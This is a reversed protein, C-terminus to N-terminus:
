EDGRNNINDIKLAKWGWTFKKKNYNMVALGGVCDDDELHHYMMLDRDIFINDGTFGFGNSERICSNFHKLVKSPEEDTLKCSHIHFGKGRKSHYESAQIEIFNGVSFSINFDRFRLIGDLNKDVIFHALRKDHNVHDIVGISKPVADWQKGDPREKVVYLMFSGNNQFEGKLFIPTGIDFDKFRYKNEPVSVEQASSYESFSLILKRKTKGNSEITYSNGINAELWELEDFLLSEALEINEQYIKKNNKSPEASTFWESQQYELMQQTIKWGEQERSSVAKQVEYKAEPFMSRQILFDAFKLRLSAIFKEESKCMLAKCYCSFGKQSDSSILIDGLLEWAWFDNIKSKVIQKAFSIAESDNGLAHLLKTKYLVLWENENFREIAMDVYPLMYQMHEFNGNVLSDKAAHQIVKEAISPFTKGDDTHYPQFDEDTLNDLDWLKLFSVLEFGEKGLLKDSFRLFLSHLQSPRKNKLGIYQALVHKAPSVNINEGQFHQKGNKYYEWGLSEHLTEDNPFYALAVKFAKIAETHNGQKSLRKADVIIRKVPDSLSMAYEFSKSLIEDSHDIDLAKLEVGLSNMFELDNKEYAAKILDILTWALAKVCWDDHPCKKILERGLSLADILQGAKRKQFVDDIMKKMPNALSLVYEAQKSLIEDSKDLDLAKLESVLQNLFNIDNSRSASKILDILTWALAKVNWIDHPEERVLERGLNLADILKGAKRLAFVERSTAM